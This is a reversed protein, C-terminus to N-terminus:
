GWSEKFNLSFSLDRCLVKDAASLNLSQVDIRSMVVQYDHQTFYHYFYTCWNGSNGSRGAIASPCDIVMIPLEVSVGLSMGDNTFHQSM